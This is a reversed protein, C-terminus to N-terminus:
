RPTAAVLLFFADRLSAFPWSRLSISLDLNKSFHEKRGQGKADKRSFDQEFFLFNVSLRASQRPHLTWTM